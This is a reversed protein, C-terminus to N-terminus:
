HRATITRLTRALIIDLASFEIKISYSDSNTFRYDFVSNFVYNLGRGAGFGIIALSPDAGVAVQHDGFARCM